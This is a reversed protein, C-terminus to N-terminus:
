MSSEDIMRHHIHKGSAAFVQVAALSAPNVAIHLVWMSWNAKKIHYYIGCMHLDKEALSELVFM